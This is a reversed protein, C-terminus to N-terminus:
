GHPQVSLLADRIEKSVLIKSGIPVEEITRDTLWMRVQWCEGPNVPGRISLHTMNIQATAPIESGDPKAVLVKETRNQWGKGNADWPVPFAPSIVLMDARIAFVHEVTLLAVLTM